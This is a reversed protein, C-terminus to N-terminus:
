YINNSTNFTIRDFINPLNFQVYIKMNCMILIQSFYLKFKLKLICYDLLLEDRLNLGFYDKGRM